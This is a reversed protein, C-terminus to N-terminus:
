KKAKKFTLTTNGMQITDGFQLYISEGVKMQRGNVLVPNKTKKLVFLYTTGKELTNEVIIAASNRSIYKDNISVKPSEGDFWRGITNVGDELVVRKQLLFKRWVLMGVTPETTMMGPVTPMPEKTNESEPKKVRVTVETPKIELINQHKCFPCTVPYRGPIAPKYIKFIKKCEDCAKTVVEKKEM